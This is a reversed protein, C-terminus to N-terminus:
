PSQLSYPEIYRACAIAIRISIVHKKKKKKKKIGPAGDSGNVNFNQWWVVLAGWPEREAGVAQFDALGHPYSSYQEIQLHSM